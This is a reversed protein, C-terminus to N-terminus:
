SRAGGSTGDGQLRLRDFLMEWATIATLPLAAANAFDFSAPKKGAIMEDGTNYEAYSGPRDVSGAYYVEDGPAFLTVGSGVEAVIGAADWGLIKLEGSPQGPGSGKRVKTDVPNISIAQIRVLLDRPGPTPADVIVDILSEPHEIPLHQRFSIAKM